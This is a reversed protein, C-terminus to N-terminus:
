LIKLILLIIRDIKYIMSDQRFVAEPNSSVKGARSGKEEESEREIILGSIPLTKGSLM